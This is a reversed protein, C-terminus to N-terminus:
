NPSGIGDALTSQLVDSPVTAVTSLVPSTVECPSDLAVIVAVEPEAEAVASTVTVMGRTAVVTM